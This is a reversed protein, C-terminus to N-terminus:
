RFMLYFMNGPGRFVYEQSVTGKRCHQPDPDLDLPDADNQRIRLIKWTDPDSPDLVNQRIRLIKWTDPDSPDADNQWIRIWLIKWQDPDM